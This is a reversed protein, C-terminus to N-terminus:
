TGFGVYLGSLTESKVALTAGMPCAGHSCRMREEKLSSVVSPARGKGHTVGERRSPPSAKVHIEDPLVRDILALLVRANQELAILSPTGCGYTTPVPAILEGTQWDMMMEMALGLSYWLTKCEPDSELM